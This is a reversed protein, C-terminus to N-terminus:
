TPVLSAAHLRVIVLMLIPVAQKLVVGLSEDAVREHTSTLLAAM